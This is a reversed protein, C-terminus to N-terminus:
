EDEELRIPECKGALIRCMEFHRNMGGGKEWVEDWEEQSLVVWEGTQKTASDWDWAMTEYYRSLHYCDWRLITSVFYRDRVYSQILTNDSM